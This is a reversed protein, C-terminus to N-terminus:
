AASRPVLVSASVAANTNAPNLSTATIRFQMAPPCQVEGVTLLSLQPITTCHAWNTGDITYDVTYSADPNPSSIGAWAIELTFSTVPYQTYFMASQTQNLPLPANTAIVQPADFPMLTGLM